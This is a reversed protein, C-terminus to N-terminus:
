EEGNQGERWEMCQKRVALLAPLLRNVEEWKKTRGELDVEPIPVGLPLLVRRLRPCIDSLFAAISVPFKIATEIFYASQCPSTIGKGPRSTPVRSNRLDIETFDVVIAFESLMACRSLLTILGRHTVGSKVGWGFNGNLNLKTLKPWHSTLAEIADDDLSINCMMDFTFSTMNPLALLPQFTSLTIQPRETVHHGRPLEITLSIRSLQESDCANVLAMFFLCHMNPTPMTQVTFSMSRPRFRMVELLSTLTPLSNVKLTLSELSAFAPPTLLPILERSQLHTPLRMVLEALSPLHSLHSIAEKDLACCELELSELSHLYLVTESLLKLPLAEHGKESYVHLSKLSLCRSTLLISTTPSRLLLCPLALDVLSNSLLAWFLPAYEEQSRTWHLTKLYPALSGYGPPHSLTFIVDDALKAQRGVYFDPSSVSLFRVRSSYRFFIEWDSRSMARQFRVTVVSFNASDVDERKWQFLDTPLCRLLYILSTLAKWLIDLAPSSFTRCTRALRAITAKGQHQSHVERFIANQVEIITLCRHM